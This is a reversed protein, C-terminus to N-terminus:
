GSTRATVAVLNSCSQGPSFSVQVTSNMTFQSSQNGCFTFTNTAPPALLTVFTVNIMAGSNDFIATFHIFSDTGASVSTNTPVFAGSVVVTGCGTLLLLLALLLLRPARRCNSFFLRM